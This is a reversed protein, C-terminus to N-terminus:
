GIGVDGKGNLGISTHYVEMTSQIEGIIAM